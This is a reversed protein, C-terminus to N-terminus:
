HGGVFFKIHQSAGLALSMGFYFLPFGQSLRMLLSLNSAQLVYIGWYAVILGAMFVVYQLTGGEIM